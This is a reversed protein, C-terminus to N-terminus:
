TIGAAAETAGFCRQFSVRRNLAFSSLRCDPSGRPLSVPSRFVLLFRRRGIGYDFPIGTAKKWHMSLTVANLSSPVRFRAKSIGM